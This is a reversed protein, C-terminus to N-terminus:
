KEAKEIVLQSNMPRQAPTPYDTTPIAKINKIKLKINLEKNAVEVIEKTFGHWSTHGSATLHYLDSLFSGKSDKRSLGAAYM